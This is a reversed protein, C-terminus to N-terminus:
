PLKKTVHVRVAEIAQEIDEQHTDDDLPCEDWEIGKLMDLLHSADVRLNVLDRLLENM